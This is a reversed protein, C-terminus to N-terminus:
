SIGMRWGGEGRIRDRAIKDKEVEEKTLVDGNEIWRASSTRDRLRKLRDKHTGKAFIEEMRLPAMPGFVADPDTGNAEQEILM